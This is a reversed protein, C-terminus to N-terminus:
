DINHINNVRFLSRNRDSFNSILKTRNTSLYKWYINSWFYKTTKATFSWIHFRFPNCIQSNEGLRNSALCRPIRWWWIHAQQANTPKRPNKQTQRQSLWHRAFVAPVEINWCSFACCVDQWYSHWFIHKLIMQENKGPILFLM